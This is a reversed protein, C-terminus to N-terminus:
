NELFTNIVFIRNILNENTSIRNGIISFAKHLDKSKMHDIAEPLNTLIVFTDVILDNITEKEIQAAEPDFHTFYISDIHFIGVDQLEKKDTINVLILIKMLYSFLLANKILIEDKHAEYEFCCNRIVRLLNVIKFNNLKDLHLLFIKFIKFELIMQRGKKLSSINAILNSCFNFEDNYIYQFFKDLVKMFIIGEIKEDGFNLFKKQGEEPITLNTLIMLYYPVEFFEGRSSKKISESDIVYKNLIYQINAGEKKGGSVLDYIDDSNQNESEKTVEKGIRELLLQSIRFITNLELFQKQVYDGGSLNIIIQLILERDETDEAELQRIMTKAFDTKLFIRQLDENDSIGLLVELVTKRKDKEKIFNLLTKIQDITADEKEM